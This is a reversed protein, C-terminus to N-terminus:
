NKCFKAGYTISLLPIMENNQYQLLTKTLLVYDYNEQLNEFYELRLADPM